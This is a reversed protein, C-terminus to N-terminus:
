RRRLALARELRRSENVDPSAMPGTSGIARLGGGLLDFVERRVTRIQHGPAHIEYEVWEATAYTERRTERAPM